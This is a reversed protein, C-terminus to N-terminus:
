NSAATLVFRPIQIFFESGDTRRMQYTGVMNGEFTELICFSNYEHSKGPEILPQKGIVGEGEVEKTSGSKDTIYWHRRMLQVPEAGNNTIRILYAFVFRKNMMDSQGDLYVPQASVTINETTATYITM